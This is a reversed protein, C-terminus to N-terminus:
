VQWRGTTIVLLLWLGQETGWPNQTVLFHLGRKPNSHSLLPTVFIFCLPVLAITDEM